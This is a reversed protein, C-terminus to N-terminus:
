SLHVGVICNGSDCPDPAGQDALQLAPHSPIPSPPASQVFTKGLGSTLLALILALTSKRLIKTTM